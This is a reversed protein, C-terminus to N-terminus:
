DDGSGLDGILEERYDRLDRKWKKAIAPEPYVRMLAVLKARPKSGLEDGRGRQGLLLRAEDIEAKSFLACHEPLDDLEDAEDPTM